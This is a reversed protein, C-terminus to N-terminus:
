NVGQEYLRYHEAVRAAQTDGTHILIRYEFTASEGKKWAHSGDLVQVSPDQKKRESTAARAMFPNATYLGYDRIHWRTPFGFSGPANFVAIGLTRGEVPGVYDCWEAPEGWCNKMGAAGRSNVMRGGSNEDMSAAVRISVMGGEKTDGFMVDGETFSLLNRVDIVREDPGAKFFRYTRTESLEKRGAASIWDIRAEIVGFVPGGEARSIRAVRQVGRRPRASGDADQMWYDSGSKSFDGLRVDGHATWISRHHPHDREKAPEAEVEKMPYHRTVAAGTPGFVPYLFPKPLSKAYNFTTFPKGDLTVNITDGEAKEVRIGGGTPSSRAELRYTCGKEGPCTVPQYWWLRGDADAQAPLTREGNVLAYATKEDLPGAPKCWVLGPVPVDKVTVSVDAAHASVAWVMWAAACLGIRNM